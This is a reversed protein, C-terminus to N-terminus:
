YDTMGSKMFERLLCTAYNGKSLSFSLRYSDHGADISLEGVPCLMERRSGRSNCRPMEPVMFHDPSLGEAEVAGREIGGMDGDAFRSDSGFLLASVFAKGQSVQDEVLDINAETVPVPREHIPVRKEGITLVLDGRLPRDLPLGRRMRESLIRNFIYSQYAHVFMMQLNDPLQRLSGAYDGPRHALHEVLTREFNLGPPFDGLLDRRGDPDRLEERVWRQEDSEYPSPHSLYCLVAERFDGRVIHKGVLHTIPRTVGFRQVGFYNPFGGLEGLEARTRELDAALGDGSLRCERVTVDFRNAILDGIRVPRAARYVDEVVVDKVDLALLDEDAVEFSMLQSTLARKDKTGAFGIRNRSIRLARSLQRVLRNMEWNRSTVKAIAYAGDEKPPPHDSIEEVIFDDPEVKIRGGSGASESHYFELGISDEDSRCPSPVM